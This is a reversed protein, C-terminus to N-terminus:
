SDNDSRSIDTGTTNVGDLIARWYPADEVRNIAYSMKGTIEEAYVIESKATSSTEAASSDETSSNPSAAHAPGGTLAAAALLAAVFAKRQKKEM